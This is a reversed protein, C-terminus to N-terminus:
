RFSEILYNIYNAESNNNINFSISEQNLKKLNELTKMLSEYEDNSPRAFNESIEYIRMEGHDDGVAIETGKRSWKLKNLARTRNDVDISASSTETDKNLNWM